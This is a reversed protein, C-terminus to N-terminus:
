RPYPPRIHGLRRSGTAPQDLTIHDQSATTVYINPMWGYLEFDYQWQDSSKEQAAASAAGFLLFLSLTLSVIRSCNLYNNMWNEKDQGNVDLLAKGGSLNYQTANNASL